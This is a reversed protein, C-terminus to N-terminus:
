GIWSHIHTGPTSHAGAQTVHREPPPYTPQAGAGGRPTTIVAGAGGKTKTWALRNWSSTLGVVTITLLVVIMLWVVTILLTRCSVRLKPLAPVRLTVTLSPGPTADMSRAVPLFSRATGTWSATRWVGMGAGTCRRMRSCFFLFRGGALRM